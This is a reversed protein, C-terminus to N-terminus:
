ELVVPPRYLNLREILPLADRLRDLLTAYRRRQRDTMAGSKHHQDLTKLHTGMLQDWDQSWSVREGVPLIDWEDEIEPMDDLACEIAFLGIEIREVTPARAVM